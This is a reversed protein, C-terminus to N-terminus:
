ESAMEACDAIIRDIDKVVKAHEKGFYEAVKLSTTTAQKHIIEVLDTM